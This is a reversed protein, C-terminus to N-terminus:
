DDGGHGHINIHSVSSNEYEFVVGNADVKLLEGEVWATITDDDETGNITLVNGDLLPAVSLVRRDELSELQLRRQRSRNRKRLDRLQNRRRKSM